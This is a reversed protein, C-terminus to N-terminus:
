IGEIQLFLVSLAKWKSKQVGSLIAGKEVYDVLGCYCVLLM